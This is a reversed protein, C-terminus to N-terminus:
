RRRFMPLRLTSPSIAPFTLNFRGGAARVAVSQFAVNNGPQGNAAVDFGWAGIFAGSSSFRQVRHIGTDAVYVDGSAGNVAVGRPGATNFLGGLTGNPTTNGWFNFVGPTAAAPSAVLALACGAVLAGVVLSGLRSGRSGGVGRGVAAGGSVGRGRVVFPLRFVSQLVSSRVRRM